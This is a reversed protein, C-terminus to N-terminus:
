FRYSLVGLGVHCAYSQYPDLTPVYFPSFVQYGGPHKIRLYLTEGKFEHAPLQSIYKTIRNLAPDGKCLLLEGPRILLVVLLLHLRYLQDMQRPTKPTTIVYEYHQDDFYGAQMLKGRKNNIM